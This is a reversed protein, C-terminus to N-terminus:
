NQAKQSKSLQERRTPLNCSGDSRMARIRGLYTQAEVKNGGFFATAIEIDTAGVARESQLKLVLDRINPDDPFGKPFLTEAQAEQAKRQSYCEHTARAALVDEVVFAHEAGLGAQIEGIRDFLESFTQLTEGVEAHHEEFMTPELYEPFLIVREGPTGSNGSLVDCLQHYLTFAQELVALHVSEYMTGGLPVLKPEHSRSVVELRAKAYKSGDWNQLLDDMRDRLESLEYCCLEFNGAKFAFVVEM